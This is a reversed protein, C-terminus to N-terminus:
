FAKPVLNFFIEWYGFRTTSAWKNTEPQEAEFYESAISNAISNELLKHM